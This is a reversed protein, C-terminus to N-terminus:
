WQRSKTIKYIKTDDETKQGYRKHHTDQSVAMFMSKGGFNNGFGFGDVQNLYPGMKKIVTEQVNEKADDTQGDGSGDFIESIYPNDSDHYASFQVIDENNILTGAVTKGGENDGLISDMKFAKLGATGSANGATISNIYLGLKAGVLNSTGFKPAAPIDYDGILLSVNKIDSVTGTQINTTSKNNDYLDSYTANPFATYTPIVRRYFKTGKSQAM